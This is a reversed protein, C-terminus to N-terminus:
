EDVPIKLVPSKFGGAYHTRLVLHLVFLGHVGPHAGRASGMCCIAALNLHATVNRAIQASQAIVQVERPWSPSAFESHDSEDGCLEYLCLIRVVVSHSSWLILCCINLAGIARRHRNSASVVPYGCAAEM